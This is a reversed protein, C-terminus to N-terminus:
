DMRVVPAILAAEQVQNAEGVEKPAADQVPVHVTRAHGHAVGLEPEFHGPRRSLFWGRLAVSRGSRPHPPVYCRVGINV